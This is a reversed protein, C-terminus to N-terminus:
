GWAGVIAPSPSAWHPYPLGSTLSNGRGWPRPPYPHGIPLHCDPPRTDGGTPPHMRTGGVQCPRATSLSARRPPIPALLYQLADQTPPYVRTGGAVTVPSLSAWHPYPMRPRQRKPDDLGGGNQPPPRRRKQAM